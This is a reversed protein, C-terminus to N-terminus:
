QAAEMIRNKGGYLVCVEHDSVANLRALAGMGDADLYPTILIYSRNSRNLAICRDALESMSTYCTGRSIGISRLIACLHNRGYGQRFDRLDGNSIFAYPIKMEELMECASRALEFCKEIDSPSAYTRELNMAVAVDTDLTHDNLKVMLRANKASQTWSIKKMPEHGTYERFGILLSPDEMIFRRVSIDGLFGGLINIQPDTEALSATCVVSKEGESSIVSTSLGLLDGAELYYRGLMHIGRSSLSIHFRGKVASRAALFLTREVNTGTFSTSVHNKKWKEDECITVGEEFSFSLGLYFLPRKGTNTITYSVTIMEGPEAMDRDVDYIVSVHKLPAKLSLIEFVVAAAVLGFFVFAIM